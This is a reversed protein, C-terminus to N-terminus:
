PKEKMLVSILNIKNVGKCWACVVEIQWPKEPDPVTFDAPPRETKPAPHILDHPTKCYGCGFSIEWGARQIEPTELM